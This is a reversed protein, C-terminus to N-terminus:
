VPQHLDSHTVGSSSTGNSWTEIIKGNGDVVVVCNEWKADVGLQRYSARIGLKV